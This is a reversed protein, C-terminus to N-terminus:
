KRKNWVNEVRSAAQEAEAKTVIKHVSRTTIKFEEATRKAFDSIKQEKLQRVMAVVKQREKASLKPVGVTKKRSGLPEQHLVPRQIEADRSGRMEKDSHLIGCRDLYAIAQERPIFAGLALRAVPVHNADVAVLRGQALEDKLAKQHDRMVAEQEAKRREIVAATILVPEWTPRNPLMVYASMFAAVDEESMPYRLAPLDALLNEMLRRDEDTLSYPLPLDFVHYNLEHVLPLLPQSPVVADPQQMRPQDLARGDDSLLECQWGATIHQKEKGCMPVPMQFYYTRQKGVICNIGELGQEGAPCIVQAIARCFRGYDILEGAPLQVQHQM